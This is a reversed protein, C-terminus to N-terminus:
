NPVPLFTGNADGEPLLVRLRMVSTFEAVPYLGSGHRGGEVNVVQGGVIEDDGEQNEVDM